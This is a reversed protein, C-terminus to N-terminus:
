APLSVNENVPVTWGRKDKITGYRMGNIEDRISTSIDWTQEFQYIRDNYAIEEVNAVLAATGTGFIEVLEGADHRDM